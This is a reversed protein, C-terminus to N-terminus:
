YQEMILSLEPENVVVKYKKHLAEIWLKELYTQYDSIILGKYEEFDKTQYNSLKNAEYFNVLGVSDKSKEWIQTELMEFLLLGEKFEKFTAAFEKNTLEINNKYYDLINEEKFQEFATKLPIKGITKLYTIFQQQSIIEDEIQLLNQQFNDPNLRWDVESFQKLANKYVVVNYKTLLSDVIAKSILNSRDDNEVQQTLKIEVVEFKELPFQQLLLIIHWGFQTQFPASIEGVNEISFAVESFEDIMEGYSFRPLKGGSDASATDDSFSRALREFDSPNKSLITYISDIRKKANTSNRIMIHAVEVEGQAPRVDNVKLIHYGFKTKFPMSVEGVPTKYAVNEFPYVMQLATFYGIEGGNNQVSPDQSFQKAVLAFDEGSLIKNRAEILSNYAKLTDAPTAEPQLFILIHSANVELQLREYAEKVLKETIKEDKLYPLVLQKKYQALEKKFKQVTDLGLDKAAKVKLKYAVFLDLYNEVNTANVDSIIEKNKAYISLFEDTYFPEDDITFLVNSTNQSISTSFSFVLLFLFFSHKM